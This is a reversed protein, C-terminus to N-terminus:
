SRVATHTLGVRDVFIDEGTDVGLGLTLFDGLDFEASHTFGAFCAEHANGRFVHFEAGAARFLELRSVYSIHTEAFSESTRPKATTQAHKGM